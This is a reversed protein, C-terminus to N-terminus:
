SGVFWEFEKAAPIPWFAQVAADAKNPSSTGDPTKDIMMKLTGASKTVVAQCLEAELTVVDNGKSCISILTEVPHSAEGTVVQWTRHFRRALEWWGQAKINQFFDKNLPTEKDGEIINEWPNLPAHNAAWPTFAVDLIRQSHSDMVEKGSLEHQQEITKKLTNISAKVGAGVGICDYQVETVGHHTAHEMARRATVGTDKAAWSKSGLLVIGDRLVWGNKDLGGDAVDLSGIRTGFCGTERGVHFDIAAQVWEPKIATGEVAANYNRDVEQAFVHGLGEAEFRAKRANYWADTKTPHDRRDMIFLQTKNREKVEGTWVTGAQRKRYFVNAPGNVSSIDLQCRTNESLAAEIKEPREYHASEDKFYILKRGGRGINDGAEGTISADNAPNIIRMFPADRVLDFGSPLFEKPLHKLISRIKEFISDLDGIKDVLAEKRSGWGVAAGPTFLWLHVSYAACLWTAGMDRCKEVLGSEESTIIQDLYEIMEAQRPFLIFPLRTPLRGSANRPDYTDVWHNIFATKDQSYYAFAGKWLEPNSRLMMLQQQRWGFVATYNPPWNEKNVTTPAAWRLSM